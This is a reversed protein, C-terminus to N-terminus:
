LENDLETESLVKYESIMMNGLSAIDTLLTTIDAKDAKMVYTMFNYFDWLTCDPGEYFKEGKKLIIGKTVEGVQTVNLPAVVKLGLNASVALVSLKGLFRLMEFGSVNIKSMRDAIMLNRNFMSEFNHSWETLVSLMREYNVDKKSGYTHMINSGYICMNACDRVDTGFAVDIGKDHYAFAICCQVEANSLRPIMIKGTVKDIIWADIIRELKFQEEVKPVIKTGSSKACYIHDLVPEHGADTLIKMIDDILTFHSVPRTKSVKGFDIANITQKLESLTLIEVRENNMFLQRRTVNVNENEM